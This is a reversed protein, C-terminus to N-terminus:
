QARLKAIRWAAFAGVGAAVVALCVRVFTSFPAMLIGFFLTIAATLILAVRANPRKVVTAILAVGTGLVLVNVWDNESATGVVADALIAAIVTFLAMGPIIAWWREEPDLVYVWCFAIALLAMGVSLSIITSDEDTLTGALAMLAGGLVAGVALIAWWYKKLDFGAM